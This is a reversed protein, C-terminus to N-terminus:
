PFNGFYFTYRNIPDNAFNSYRSNAEDHGDTREATQGYSIVRSGSFPVEHDELNSRQTM